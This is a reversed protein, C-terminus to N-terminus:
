TKENECKRLCTRFAQLFSSTLFGKFGMPKILTEQSLCTRFAHLFSSTPFRSFGNTKYPNRSKHLHPFGASLKLDLFRQFGNTKYPNGSKALKQLEMLMREHWRDPKLLVISGKSFGLFDLFYRWFADKKLLTKPGLFVGKPM